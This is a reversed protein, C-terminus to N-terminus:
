SERFKSSMDLKIDVMSADLYSGETTPNWIRETVGKTFDKPFLLSGWAEGNQVLKIAEQETKVYKQLCYDIM